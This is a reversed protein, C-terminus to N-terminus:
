RLETTSCPTAFPPQLFGSSPHIHKNADTPMYKRKWVHTQMCRDINIQMQKRKSANASGGKTAGEAHMQNFGHERFPLWGAWYFCRGLYFCLKRLCNRFLKYLSDGRERCSLCFVAGFLKRLSNTCVTKVQTIPSQNTVVVPAPAEPRLM